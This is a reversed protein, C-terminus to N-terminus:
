EIGAATEVLADMGTRIDPYKEAFEAVEAKSREEAGFGAVRFLALARYGELKSIWALIAIADAQTM